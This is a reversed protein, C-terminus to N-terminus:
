CYVTMAGKVDSMLALGYEMPVAKSSAMRDAMMEAKLAAMQLVTLTELKGALRRALLPASWAVLSAAMLWEMVDGLTKGLSTATLDVWRAGWM